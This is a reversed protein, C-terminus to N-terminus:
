LNELCAKSTKLAQSRLLCVFMFGDDVGRMVHRSTSLFLQLTAFGVVVILLWKHSSISSRFTKVM